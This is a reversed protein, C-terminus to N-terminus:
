DPRQVMYTLFYYFINYELVSKYHGLEHLVYRYSDCVVLSYGFRVNIEAGNDINGDMDKIVSAPVSSDRGKNTRLTGNWIFVVLDYDDANVNDNKYAEIIADTAMKGPQFAQDNYTLGQTYYKKNNGLKYPGFVQNVNISIKNYSCFRFYRDIKEFRVNWDEPSALQYTMDGPYCLIVLTEQPGSPPNYILGNQYGENINHKDNNIYGIVPIVSSLILFTLIIIYKFKM